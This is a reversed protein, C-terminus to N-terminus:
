GNRGLKQIDIQAQPLPYYENVGKHFQATPNAYFVIAPKKLQSILM